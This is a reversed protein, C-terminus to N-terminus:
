NFLEAHSGVAVLTISKREIKLYILLDDPRLHLELM